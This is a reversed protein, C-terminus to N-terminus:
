LLKLKGKNDEADKEKKPYEFKQIELKTRKTRRSRFM